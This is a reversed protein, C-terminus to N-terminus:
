SQIINEANINEANNTPLSRIFINTVVKICKKNAIIRNIQVIHTIRFVIIFSHMSAAPFKQYSFHNLSIM